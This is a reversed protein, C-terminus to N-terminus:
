GTQKSVFFINYSLNWVQLHSNLSGFRGNTADTLCKVKTIFWYRALLLWLLRIYFCVFHSSLIVKEEEIFLFTLSGNWCMPPKKLLACNRPIHCKWGQLAVQSTLWMRPASCSWGSVDLHVIGVRSFDGRTGESSHRVGEGDEKWCLFGGSPSLFCEPLEEQTQERSQPSFTWQGWKLGDEAAAGLDRQQDLICCLGAINFCSNLLEPKWASVQGANFFLGRVLIFYQIIKQGDGLHGKKWPALSLWLSHLPFIACSLGSCQTLSLLLMAPFLPM